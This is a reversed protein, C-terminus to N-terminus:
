RKKHLGGEGIFQMLQEYDEEIRFGLDKEFRAIDIATLIAKIKLEEFKKILNNKAQEDYKSLNKIAKQWYMASKLYSKVSLSEYLGESKMIEVYDRYNM